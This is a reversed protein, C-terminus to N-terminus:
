VFTFPIFNKIFFERMRNMGLFSLFSSLQIQKTKLSANQNSNLKKVCIFFFMAFLFLGLHGVSPLAVM